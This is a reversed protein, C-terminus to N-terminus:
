TLFAELRVFSEHIHCRCKVRIAAAFPFNVRVSETMLLYGLSSSNLLLLLKFRFVKLIFLTKADINLGLSFDLRLNDALFIM